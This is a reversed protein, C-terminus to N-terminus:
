LKLSLTEAHTSFELNLNMLGERPQMDLSKITCTKFREDDDVDLELQIGRLKENARLVGLSIATRYEGENSISLKTSRMLKILGGCDESYFFKVWMNLIKELGSGTPRLNNTGFTVNGASDLEFIKIDIKGM